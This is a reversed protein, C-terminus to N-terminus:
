LETQGLEPGGPAPPDDTQLRPHVSSPVGTQGCRKHEPGAKPKSVAVCLFSKRGAPAASNLPISHTEQNVKLFM